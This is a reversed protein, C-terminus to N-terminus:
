FWIEMRLGRDDREPSAPLCTVGAGRPDALGRRALELGVLADLLDDEHVGSGLVRHRGRLDGFGPFHEKLLGWRRELGAPQHKSLVPEGALRQWVLEPHFECVTEQLAPTLAWDTERLKAMLGFTQRSVGTGGFQRRHERNFTAYDSCGLLSRPPAPFVRSHHRGLAQKALRDCDRQCGDAPLGLPMDVVVWQFGRIRRLVADFDALREVWPTETGGSPDM